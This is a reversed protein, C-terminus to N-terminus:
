RDVGERGVRREESRGIHGARYDGGRVASAAAKYGNFRARTGRGAVRRLTRATHAREAMRPIKRGPQLPINLTLISRPRARFYHRCKCASLPRVWVDRM